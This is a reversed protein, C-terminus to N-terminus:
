DQGHNHRSTVQRFVDELRGKELHLNEVPWKNEDLFRVLQPLQMSGNEPFLMYQREGLVEVADIGTIQSLQDEAEEVDSELQLQIANHHRSERELTQPEGDLLLKGQNIIVARTCVASVEELIHTSIIVIKDKALGKILERVQHKQNPDLGDTPEDLILVQPDHIIAQALGVRRAFGKSLNEIPKDLVGSLEVQDIVIDLRKRKIEGQLGRIDAIFNLFGRVTMEQYAPAGEPLYGILQQAAKPNQLVDIDFVSINGSTPKLFGTLMKMTTSKGAGNPGLFGLVEGPSVSLDLQNVAKFGDFDKTLKEVRIM